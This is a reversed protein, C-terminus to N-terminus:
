KVEFEICVKWTRPGYALVKRKNIVRISKNMRKACKKVIGLPKSFMEREHGYHYLHIVGKRKLCRFAIPLYRYGEKPLPMVIRDCLGYYDKAADKVDGLVPIVRHGVKNIRVNEMAYHHADPNIEIGYVIGVGPRKRAIIIPFCGIGSFMVMVTERARVQGAIRQRETAERPSFYVKAVDLRFRCGYERHETETGNGVIKRFRRTRYKGEREGMKRLVTKVRPHDSVILRAIEREKGGEPVEVVAVDGIIDFATM